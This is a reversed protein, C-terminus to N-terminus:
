MLISVTVFYNSVRVYLTTTAPTEDSAEGTTEPTGDYASNPKLM